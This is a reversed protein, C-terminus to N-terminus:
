EMDDQVRCRSGAPLVDGKRTTGGHLRASPLTARKGKVMKEAMALDETEGQKRIM